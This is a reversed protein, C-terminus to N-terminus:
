LTYIKVLDPNLNTIWYSFAADYEGQGYRPYQEYNAPSYIQERANEANYQRPDRLEVVTARYKDKLVDQTYKAKSTARTDIGVEQNLRLGALIALYNGTYKRYRSM